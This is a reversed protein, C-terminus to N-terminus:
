RLRLPILRNKFHFIKLYYLYQLICQRNVMIVLDTLFHIDLGKLEITLFVLPLIFSQSSSIIPSTM